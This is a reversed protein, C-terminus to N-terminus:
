AARVNQTRQIRELTSMAQALVQSTQEIVTTLRDVEAAKTIPKAEYGVEGALWAFPSHCGIEKAMSLIFMIQSLELKESRSPNLCDQLLRSAADVGKDVWLLSAVKKAGGLAQVAARVADEPSEYFPMESQM